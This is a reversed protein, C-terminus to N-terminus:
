PKDLFRRMGDRADESARCQGYAELQASLAAPDAAPGLNRVLAKTAALAAPSHRDWEKVLDNVLSTSRQAPAIKWVLGKELAERASFQRGSLVFELAPFRGIREVLLEMAYAPPWGLKIEPMAFRANHAACILDASMALALGGGMCAGQIEAIVIQPLAALRRCIQGRRTALALSESADLTANEKIDEGACFARGSGNLLCFRVEPHAKELEDLAAELEDTMAADIANLAKERQLQLTAVNGERTLTVRRGYTKAAGATATGAPTRATLAAQFKEAKVVARRHRGRGIEGHADCASVEFDFLRKESGVLTAQADVTDGVPTPALHEVEVNVGVSDEGPDLYPRLLEKAALEMALIMSPTSFVETRSGERGIGISRAADVLMTHSAQTGIKPSEKM